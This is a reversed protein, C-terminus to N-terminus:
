IEFSVEDEDEEEDESGYQIYDEDMNLYDDDQLEECVECNDLVSGYLQRVSSIHSKLYCLKKQLLAHLGLIGSKSLDSDQKKKTIDVAVHCSLDNLLSLDRKLSKWHNRIENLVICEEETLRKLLMLQDFARKKTVLNDREDLVWPWAYSECALISDASQLKEPAERNYEDVAASFKAKEELIKRRLKHRRKNGDTQRYLDRKRQRISVYLTEITKQLGQQSSANEKSTATDAWQQIESTWDKLTDDTVAFETKLADLNLSEEQIQAKTKILRRSLVNALNDIKRQNWAMAQITIMDTRAGKTMYKSCIATRSLFSNVQEVEEGLTTGAGEQNRGGWKIECKWSHAKAHMVSLFPKMHLLPSLEPCDNVVRQLYPWYKCIVDTCMFQVNRPTLEKQLFLPYAFIEGRMMNLSRLLVGHRCVAVEMGEEDLKNIKKPISERAATWQSSGCVGKGASHKTKKNIYDVFKSVDEDECVFVGKFLGHDEAGRKFRYLKRNGDVSVALMFPSCAPCEFVKLGCLQDIQFQCYRWEFFSRQFADTCIKGDRGFFETRQELLSVFSQRSLGPATLKMHDYSVFVDIKYLTECSATAPWYGSKILHPISTTRSMHCTSCTFTPLSVNYRGDIGILIAKKGGSVVITDTACSCIQDPTELPLLCDKEEFHFQNDIDVKVLTSPSIARFFGEVDTERNHLKREHALIDCDACYLQKPVCDKCRIVSRKLQCHQCQRIDTYEATLLSEVMEPRLAAWKKKAQAMRVSWTNSSTPNSCQIDGTDALLDEVEQHLTEIDEVAPWVTHSPQSPVEGHDIDVQGSELSSMAPSNITTSKSINAKTLKPRRRKPVLHGFEDREVFSVPRVRTSCAQKTKKKLPPPNFTQLIEEAEKTAAELAASAAKLELERTIIAAEQCLQDFGSNQCSAM